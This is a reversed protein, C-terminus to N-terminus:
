KRLEVRREQSFGEHLYSHSVGDDFLATLRDSPLLERLERVRSYAASKAKIYGGHCDPLLPESGLARKVSEYLTRFRESQKHEVRGIPLANLAEVDLMDKFRLWRLSEVILTGTDRVLDQNWSDDGPVNDRAPTTRYPGQILFGLHTEILTPFFVVLPSSEVAQIRGPGGAENSALRWAVEVYGAQKQGDRIIPRSFVLWKEDEYGGDGGTSVVSTQRVNGELVDTHRRYVGSEESDVSWHIEEIHRLFLLTKAGLHKLGRAVDSYIDGDGKKFPIIFVTEDAKQGIPEVRIPRIYNEIAFSENGSHVEPRDAVAYVSKFGIGFRGIDTLKKTTEGVSCISRVDAENFLEGYHNVRLENASLHFRVARSGGWSDGRRRLADEANQLLELVFHSREAYLKSLTRISNAATREIRDQDDAIARYDISM